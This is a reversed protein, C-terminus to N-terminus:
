HAKKPSAGSGFLSYMMTENVKIDLIEKFYRNSYIRNPFQNKKGFNFADIKSSNELFIELLFESVKSQQSHTLRVFFPKTRLLQM